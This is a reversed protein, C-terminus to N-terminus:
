GSAFISVGIPMTCTCIPSFKHDVQWQLQLYIHDSHVLLSNPTRPITPWTWSTVAHQMIWFLFAVAFISPNAKRATVNISVNTDRLVQSRKIRLYTLTKLLKTTLTSSQARILMPWSCTLSWLHLAKIFHFLYHFSYVSTSKRDISLKFM